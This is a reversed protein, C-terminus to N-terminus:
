ATRPTVERLLRAADEPLLTNIHFGTGLEFGALAGLRPTIEIHWCWSDRVLLAEATAERLATLPGNLLTLNYAPFELAANLRQLTAQIAEALQSLEHETCSQFNASLRRPYIATEFLFRSAYPCLVVFASNEFVIRKNEREEHLLLDRFWHRGKWRYYQAANTCMRRILEPVVPLAVIQSHPHRLTAGALPGHNKFVCIHQFRVDKTLDLIRQKWAGLVAALQRLPQNELPEADPSEIVVEHAGLGDMADFIGDPRGEPRGEIRLAPYRNPVVRVSWGPSNPESEPSRIALIEPPTSKENGPAFPDFMAEPTPQFHYESPRRSREESFVTWTDRLPDRRLEPQRM